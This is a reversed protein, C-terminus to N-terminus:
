MEDRPMSAPLHLLGVKKQLFRSSGGESICCLVHVNCLRRLSESETYNCKNLPLTARAFSNQLYMHHM